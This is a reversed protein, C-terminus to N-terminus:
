EQTIHLIGQEKLIDRYEGTIDFGSLPSNRLFFLFDSHNNLVEQPYITSIRYKGPHCFGLFMRRYQSNPDYTDDYLLRNTSQMKLESIARGNDSDNEYLFVDQCMRSQLASDLMKVTEELGLTTQPIYHFTM